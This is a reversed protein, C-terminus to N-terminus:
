RSQSTLMKILLQIRYRFSNGQKSYIICRFTKWISPWIIHQDTYTTQQECFKLEQRFNAVHKTCMFLALQIHKCDKIIYFAIVFNLERIIEHQFVINIQYNKVSGLLIISNLWTHIYGCLITFIYIWYTRGLSPKCMFLSPAVLRDSIIM